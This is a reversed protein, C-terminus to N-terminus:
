ILLIGILHRWKCHITPIPLSKRLKELSDPLYSSTSYSASITSYIIIRAPLWSGSSIATVAEIQVRRNCNKCVHLEWNRSFGKSYHLLLNTVELQISQCSPNSICQSLINLMALIFIQNSHHKNQVSDEWCTKWAWFNVKTSFARSYINYFSYHGRAIVFHLYDVTTYM